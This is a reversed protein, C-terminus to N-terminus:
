QKIANDYDNETAGIVSDDSLSDGLREKLPIEDYDSRDVEMHFPGDESDSRDSEDRGPWKRKMIRPVLRTVEKTDLKADSHNIREFRVASVKRANGALIQLM